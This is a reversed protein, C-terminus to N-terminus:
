RPPVVAEHRTAQHGQQLLAIVEDDSTQSFDDYWQGVSSLARPTSECVVEDAEHRLRQLAQASGVPVAVVLRGPSQLRLAKVAVRMTAGTALGDDVVPVTRGLLNPAKRGDRYIAERRELEHREDSEVARVSADSLGLDRVITADLVRAGGGAIAGMAYEEHGPVGLKRVVFVDLPAHLARSVEYAVPVGGRPLALVIVDRRDAYAALREALRRGAHRRDQFFDRRSSM